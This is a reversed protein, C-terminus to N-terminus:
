TLLSLVPTFPKGFRQTFTTRKRIKLLPGKLLSLSPATRKAVKHTARDKLAIIMHHIAYYNMEMVM